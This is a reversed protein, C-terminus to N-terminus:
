KVLNFGKRKRKKNEKGSPGRLVVWSNATDQDNANDTTGQGMGIYDLGAKKLLEKLQGFLTRDRNM